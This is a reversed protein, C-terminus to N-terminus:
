PRRIGAASLQDEVRKVRAEAEARVKTLEGDLKAEIATVKAAQAQVLNYASLALLTEVAVVLVLIALILREIMLAM